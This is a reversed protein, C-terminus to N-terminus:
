EGNNQPPEDGRMEAIRKAMRKYINGIAGIISLMVVPSLVLLIITFVTVVVHSKIQEGKLHILTYLGIGLMAPMFMIRVSSFFVGAAGAYLLSVFLTCIFTSLLFLFTGFGSVSIYWEDKRRRERGTRNCISAALFGCVNVGAVCLAPFVKLYAKLAMGFYAGLLESYAGASKLEETTFMRYMMVEAYRGFAALMVIALDEGSKTLRAELRGITQGIASFSFGDAAAARLIFTLAALFLGPLAARLVCSTKGLKSARARFLLFGSIYFYVCLLTEAIAWRGTILYSLLLSLGFVTPASLHPAIGTPDHEFAASLFGAAVGHLALFSAFCFAFLLPSLASLLVDSQEGDFIFYGLFLVASGALATLAALLIRSIVGKKVSLDVAM